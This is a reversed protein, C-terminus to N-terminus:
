VRRSLVTLSDVVEKREFRDDRLIVENTVKVSGADDIPYDPTSRSDHIAVIGCPQVLGNWALWDDLLGQETHDGDIFIFDVPEHGASAKAGTTEIWRVTGNRIRGVEHHAIRKQASFGLRGPRFPDVASLVGDSAMVSRLRSTTGGHWVGIEVLRRRGSAHRVLCDREVETTQTEPRALGIV